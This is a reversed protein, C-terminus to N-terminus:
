DLNFRRAYWNLYTGIANQELILRIRENLRGARHLEDYIMADRMTLSPNAVEDFYDPAGGTPQVYYRIEDGSFDVGYEVEQWDGQPTQSHVWKRIRNSPPPRGRLALQM